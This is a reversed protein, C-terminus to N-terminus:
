GLLRHRLQARRQWEPDGRSLDAVGRSRPGGQEQLLPLVTGQGHRVRRHNSRSEDGGSRAQSVPGGGRRTDASSNRPRERNSRDGTSRGATSFLVALRLEAQTDIDKAFHATQVQKRGSCVTVDSFSRAGGFPDDESAADTQVLQ